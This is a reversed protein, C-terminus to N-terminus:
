LVKHKCERQSFSHLVIDYVKFELTLISLFRDFNDEELFVNRKEVGRSIIHYFGPHTIREKRPM